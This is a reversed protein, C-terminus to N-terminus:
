IHNHFTVGDNEFVYIGDIRHKRTLSEDNCIEKIQDLTKNTTMILVINSTRKVKDLTNNWSIKDIINCKQNTVKGSTIADLVVDVEEMVAVFNEHNYKAYSYRSWLNFDPRIPTYDPYLIGNIQKAIVRATTTKGCGTPGSLLFVQSQKEKYMRKGIADAIEHSNQIISEKISDSYVIEEIEESGEYLTVISNKSTGTNTHCFTKSFLSIWHIEMHLYPGSYGSQRESINYMYMSKLDLICESITINNFTIQEGIGIVSTTHEHTLHNLIKMVMNRNNHTSLTHKSILLFWIKSFVIFKYAVYLYVLVLPQIGLSQELEQKLISYQSAINYIM